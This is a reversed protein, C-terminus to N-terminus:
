AQTGKFPVIRTLIHQTPNTQNPFRAGDNLRGGGNLIRGGGNPIIFPPPLIFPSPLNGFWVV